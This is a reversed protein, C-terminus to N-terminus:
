KALIQIVADATFDFEDDARRGLGGKRLAATQQALFAAPTSQGAGLLKTLLSEAADLDGREFADLAVTYQQLDDQLRQADGSPFVTFLDVPEDIGPVRATCVKM